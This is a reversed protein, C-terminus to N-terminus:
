VSLTPAKRILFTLVAAIVCLVASVVFAQTFPLASGIKPGIIAALGYSCFIIGYNTGVNATGYYDATISPYIALFGGFCFGIVSCASLFTFYNMGVSGMYGMALASLVYM